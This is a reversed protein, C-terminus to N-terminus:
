VQGLAAVSGVVISSDHSWVKLSGFSQLTDQLVL